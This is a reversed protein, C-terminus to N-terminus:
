KKIDEPDLYWESEQSLYNELRKKIYGSDDRNRECNLIFIARTLSAFADIDVRRQVSSRRSIKSIEGIIAREKELFEIAYDLKLIAM